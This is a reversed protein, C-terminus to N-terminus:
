AFKEIKVVPERRLRSLRKICRQSEREVCEKVLKNTFFENDLLNKLILVRKEYYLIREEETFQKRM